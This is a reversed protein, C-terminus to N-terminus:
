REKYGQAKLNTIYVERAKKSKFIAMDYFPSGDPHYKGANFQVVYRRLGMDLSSYEQYKM